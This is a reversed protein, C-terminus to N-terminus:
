TVLELFAATKMKFVAAKRVKQPPKIAGLIPKADM